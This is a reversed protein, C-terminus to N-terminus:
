PCLHLKWSSVVYVETRFTKWSAVGFYHTYTEKLAKMVQVINHLVSQKQLLHQAHLEIIGHVSRKEVTTLLRGGECHGM